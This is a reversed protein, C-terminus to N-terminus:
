RRDVLQGISADAKVPQNSNPKAHLEPQSIPYLSAAQKKPIQLTRKPPTGYTFARINSSGSSIPRTMFNAAVEPEDPEIVNNSLHNVKQMGPSELQAVADESGYSQEDTDAM